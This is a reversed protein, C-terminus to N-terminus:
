DLELTLNSPQCYKVTVNIDIAGESQLDQVYGNQNLKAENADDFPGFFYICKPESTIAQIWWAFNAQTNGYNFNSPSISIIKGGQLSIQRLQQSMRHFPVKLRIRSNPSSPLFVEYIFIREESWKSSVQSSYM